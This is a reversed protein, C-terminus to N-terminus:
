ERLKTHDVLDFAASQDLLILCVVQKNDIAKLIDTRIKLLCTETSHNARYASQNKTVLHNNELHNTLQTFVIREITKGLFELNTIPRMNSDIAEQKGSKLIPRILGTKLKKPFVRTDFSVNTIHQILPVIEEIYQKLISTPIPDLECSNNTSKRILDEVETLSISNFQELQNDCQVIKEKPEQIGDEKLKNVRINIKDWIKEIKAKFYTSLRDALEQKSNADSLASSTKRGLLDNCITFIKRLDCRSDQLQNQYYSKEKRRLLNNIDRRAVYFNNYKDINNTDNKWIRELKRRDSGSKTESKKTM